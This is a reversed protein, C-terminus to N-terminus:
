RAASTIQKASATHRLMSPALQEKAIKKRRRYERKAVIHACNPDHYMQGHDSEPIFSRFCDERACLRAIRSNAQDLFVTLNLAQALSRCQARLSAPTDWSASLEPIRLLDRLVPGVTVVISDMCKIETTKMRRLLSVHTQYQTIESFPMREKAIDLPGYKRFVTKFESVTSASMFADRAEFPNRHIVAHDDLQPNFGDFVFVPEEGDFDVHISLKKRVVLSGNVPVTGLKLLM